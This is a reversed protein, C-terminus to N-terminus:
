FANADLRTAVEVAIPLMLVVSAANSVIETILATGLYFVGLLVIAPLLVSAAMIGDALLDATGSAEFAIGLPIVGALLFIVDWDVAEYADAPRLCGTVIMAVIGGLASVMIPMVGLAALGVVGVIIGVAIPIKRREFSEWRDTGSVIISRHRGLTELSGEPARVLLADGGELRLDRMRTRIVESGRRIALVTVDFRSQFEAVRLPRGRLWTGPLLVIERFVGDSEEEPADDEVQDVQEDPELEGSVVRKIHASEEEDLDDIVDPLLDLHDDELVRQLTEEDARVALIDGANIRQDRLHSAIVRGNRVIQFIDIDLDDERAIDRVLSGVWHADERVVIDTLYESMGFESSPDEAPEIRAPTLYRGVTLLYISGVGLVLVGLQTFEFMTFPEATPGGQRAWVDSALLNSSTGILTLTGGMMAVFSLPMLLNSPSTKAKNALESVVPILIAVIPTNNVFGAPPGALGMIAILQKREDGGTYASVARTLLQIAGTQRVGESLIFMALVTITAPNSFGSVGETPGVGTWPELLILAVMIGIATTDIPIPQLVFLVLALVIIGIVVLMEPTLGAVFVPSWLHDGLTSAIPVM